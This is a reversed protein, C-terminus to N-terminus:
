FKIIIWILEISFHLNQTLYDNFQVKENMIIMMHSLIKSKKIWIEDSFLFQNFNKLPSM